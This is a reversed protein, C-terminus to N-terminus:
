LRMPLNRDHSLLLFNFYGQIGHATIMGKADVSAVGSDSSLYVVDKPGGEMKSVSLQFTEGIKLNLVNRNLEILSVESPSSGGCASLGGLALALIFPFYRNM